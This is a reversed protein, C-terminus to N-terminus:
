LHLLPSATDQLGGSLISQGEKAFAKLGWNKANRPDDKEALAQTEVQQAQLQSQEIAERRKEEEEVSAAMDEISPLGTPDYTINAENEM